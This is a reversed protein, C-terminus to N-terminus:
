SYGQRALAAEMAESWTTFVLPLLVALVLGVRLSRIPHRWLVAEHPAISRGIRRLPSRRRPTARGRPSITSTAPRARPGPLHIGPANPGCRWHSRPVKASVAPAASTSVGPGPVDAGLPASRGRRGGNRRRYSRAPGARASPHPALGRERRRGRGTLVADPRLGGCEAIADYCAAEIRAIGELLGHLFAVDDGPRPTVRSPLRPDAVPFREGPAPLPYYDLGSPRAPDIRGSLRAIADPDFHALLAGGGSNSAGGVLWGPGIRHSYLGIEPRDIRRDVLLKVALTTGLSTVAAGLTMPAAALFAAISDTTGAHVVADLSLGFRAAM